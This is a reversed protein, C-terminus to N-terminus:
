SCLQLIQCHMELTCLAQVTTCVIRGFVVHILDCYAPQAATHVHPRAPICDDIFRQRDAATEPMRRERWTGRLMRTAGGHGTFPALMWITQVSPFPRDHHSDHGWATEVQAQSLRARRAVLAEGTASEGSGSASTL